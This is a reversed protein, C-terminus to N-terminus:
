IVHITSKTTSHIPAFTAQLAAQGIVSINIERIMDGIIVISPSKFELESHANLFSQLTYVSTQQSPTTAEEIIAIPRDGSAGHTILGQVLSKLPSISMYYVLTDKSHAWYFYDAESIDEKRSMSHLQVGPAIGKGTLPIGLSAAAGSAATIGPIIQYTINHAKIADIEDIVNSYIAVDGGKLRLVSKGALAKEILLENISQQDTSEKQYAQKGVFIIEARPPAYRSLIDPHVLRDVLICDSKGLCEVLKITVLDPDGPGASGFVIHPHKIM